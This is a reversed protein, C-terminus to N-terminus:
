KEDIFSIVFSGDCPPIMQEFRNAFIIFHVLVRSKIATIYLSDGNVGMM